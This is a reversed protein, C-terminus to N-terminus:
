TDIRIKGSMLRPLLLDRTKMIKENQDHNLIIQSYVMDSASNYRDLIERNPLCVSMRNLHTPGFNAQVSGSSLRVQEDLFYRSQLYQYLFSHGIGNKPRFRIVSTNLLLPLHTKRVIASRGLTGSASLVMDKEALLFHQYKKEVDEQNIYNASEVKIDGDNILRINIFRTGAEAYQWNRIGPGELYDFAEFMSGVRWGEPIPGLDSDVMKGGNSKYPKGNEDPFEFNVFWRKFLAQAIEELTKNMKRNLEIKEDLSSLIEAIRKQEDLPPAPFELKELDGITIQSQASGTDLYRLGHHNLYYFFKKDFIEEDLRVIISLNTVYSKEPSLKVDGTGGVGRAVVIIEENECNYEPYYGSIRYGSFIPYDFSGIKSKDPMKGYAMKSVAGLRIIGWEEPILGIETEKFRTEDRNM